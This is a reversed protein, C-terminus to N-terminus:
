THQDRLFDNVMGYPNESIHLVPYQRQRFKLLEKKKEELALNYYEFSNWFQVSLPIPLKLDM